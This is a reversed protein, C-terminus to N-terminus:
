ENSADPIRTIKVTWMYSSIDREWYCDFCKCSDSYQITDGQSFDLEGVPIVIHDGGQGCTPCKTWVHIKSRAAEPDPSNPVNDNPGYYVCDEVGQMPSVQYTYTKFDTETMETESLTNKGPSDDRERCASLAVCIVSATFFAIVKLITKKM